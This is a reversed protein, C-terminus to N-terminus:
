SGRVISMFQRQAQTVNGCFWETGGDAGSYNERMTQLLRAEVAAMNSVKQPNM